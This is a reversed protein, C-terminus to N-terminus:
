IGNKAFFDNLASTFEDVATEWDPSSTIKKGLDEALVSAECLAIIDKAEFALTKEPYHMRIFANFHDALNKANAEKEAAAKKAAAEAEQEAQVRKAASNLEAVFANAIDDTSKGAKLAEYIDFM